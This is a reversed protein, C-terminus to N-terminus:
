KLKLDLTKFIKHFKHMHEGKLTSMSYVLSVIDYEEEYLDEQLRFLLVAEGIIEALLTRSQSSDIMKKGEIIEKVGQHKLYITVIFEDGTRKVKAREPLSTPSDDFDPILKIGSLTDRKINLRCKAQNNELGVEVHTFSDISANPRPKVEIYAGFCDFEPIPEFTVEESSLLEFDVDNSIQINATKEPDFLSTPCLILVNKSKDIKTSYTKKHFGLEVISAVEEEKVNIIFSKSLGKGPVTITIESTGLSEGYISLQSTLINKVEKNRHNGFTIDKDTNYSINKNNIKLEVKDGLAVNKIDALISINKKKNLIINTPFPRLELDDTLIIENSVELDEEFISKMLKSLERVLEDQSKSELIDSSSNMEDDFRDFEESLLSEVESVMESVFPHNRDLGSRSPNIIPIPNDARPEIENKENQDYKLYLDEIQPALITGHFFPSGNRKNFGFLTNEFNNNNGRILLGAEATRNNASPLEDSPNPLKYLKFDIEGYGNIEIKRNILETYTNVDFSCNLKTKKSGSSLYVDREKYIGRLEFDDSLKSALNEFKTKTITKKLKFSIKTGGNKGCGVSNFDKKTATNNLNIENYKHSNQFVLKTYKGNHITEITFSNNEALIPVDKLGRGLRGRTGKSTYFDASRAGIRLSNAIDKIGGASDTISIKGNLYSIDITGSKKGYADHSNTILEILGKIISGGMAANQAQTIGRDTVILQKTKKSM